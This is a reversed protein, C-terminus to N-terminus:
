KGNKDCKLYEKWDWYSYLCLGINNDFTSDKIINCNFFNNLMIRHANSKHYKVDDYTNSISSIYKKDKGIRLKWGFMLGNSLHKKDDYKTSNKINYVEQKNLMDLCVANFGNRTSFLYLTSLKFQQQTTILSAVIKKEYYIKDISLDFDFFIVHKGNECISSIAFVNPLKEKEDIVKMVYDNRM